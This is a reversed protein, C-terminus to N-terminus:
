IGSIPYFLLASSVISQDEPTKLGKSEATERLIKKAVPDNRGYYRDVINQKSLAGDEPIEHRNTLRCLQMTSSLDLLRFASMGSPVSQAV